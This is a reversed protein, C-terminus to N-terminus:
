SPSKSPAKKAKGAATKSHVPPYLKSADVALPKEPACPPIGVGKVSVLGTPVPTEKQAARIANTRGVYESIAATLLQNISCDELEALEAVQQHLGRPIRLAIKGSNGDFSIPERIERGHAMSVLLWSEAAKDLNAIAEAATDGEAVCGPFEQITASFGGGAEPTLRRTYPKGLIEAVTSKNKMSANM